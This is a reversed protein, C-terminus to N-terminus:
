TMCLHSKGPSSSTQKFFPMSSLPDGQSSSLQRHNVADMELNYMQRNRNNWKRYLHRLPNNYNWKCCKWTWSYNSMLALFLTLGQLANILDLPITMAQIQNQDNESEAMYHLFWGVVESVWAIGTAVFIKLVSKVRLTVSTRENSAEEDEASWLGCSLAITTKIFCILNFCLVPTMPVILYYLIGHYSM